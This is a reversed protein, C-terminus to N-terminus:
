VKDKPNKWSFNRRQIFKTCINYLAMNIDRLTKGLSEAFSLIDVNFGKEMYGQIAADAFYFRSNQYTEGLSICANKQMKEEGLFWKSYGTFLEKPAYHFVVKNRIMYLPNSKRSTLKDTLAAEVLAKWSERARRHLVRITEKLFPHELIKKNEQILKFLEQVFGIHLRIIHFKIGAYEGWASNIRPAGEPESDLLMEYSVIYYKYDNYAVSLALVFNCLEQPINKDGVFAKPDFEKHPTLKSFYESFSKM